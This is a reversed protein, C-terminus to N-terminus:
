APFTRPLPFRTTPPPRNAHAGGQKAQPIYKRWRTSDLVGGGNLHLAASRQHTIVYKYTVKSLIFTLTPQEEVHRDRRQVSQVLYSDGSSGKPISVGVELRM